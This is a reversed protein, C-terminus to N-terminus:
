LVDQLSVLGALIHCEILGHYVRKNKHFNKSIMTEWLDTAKEVNGAKCYSDFVM